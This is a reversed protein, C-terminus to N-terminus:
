APMRRTPLFMPVCAAALALLTLTGPEPVTYCQTDIVIEAINTSQALNFILWEGNPNPRIEELGNYAYWTGGLGATPDPNPLSVGSPETTPPLGLPTPSKDSTMQWFIGKVDGGDPNNPIWIRLDSYSGEQGGIHLTNIPQGNWDPITQMTTDAPWIIQPLGYPNHLEIPATLNLSFDWWVHTNTPYAPDWPPDWLDEALAPAAFVGLVMLIALIKKM